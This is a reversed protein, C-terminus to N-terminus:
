IRPVLRTLLKAGHVVRKAAAFLAGALTSQRADLTLRRFCVSLSAGPASSCRQSVEKDTASRRGASRGLLCGGTGWPELAGQAQVRARQAGQKCVNSVGVGDICRRAQSPVCRIIGHNNELQM